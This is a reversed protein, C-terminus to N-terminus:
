TGRELEYKGTMTKIIIFIISGVYYAMSVVDHAARGPFYASFLRFAEINHPYRDIISITRFSLPVLCLILVAYLGARFGFAILVGSLVGLTIIIYSVIIDKKYAKDFNMEIKNDPVNMGPSIDRIRPDIEQLLIKVNPYPSFPPLYIVGSLWIGVTLIGFWILAKNKAMKVIGIKGEIPHM